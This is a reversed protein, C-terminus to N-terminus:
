SHREVFHEYVARRGLQYYYGIAYGEFNGDARKELFYCGYDDILDPCNRAPSWMLQLFRGSFVGEVDCVYRTDASTVTGYVRDGRMRSIEIIESREAGDERWTSKWKGRLAAVPRRSILLTVPKSRGIIAGTVSAIAAIISSMVVDTM